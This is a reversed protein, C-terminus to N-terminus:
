PHCSAEECEPTTIDGTGVLNVNKSTIGIFSVETDECLISSDAVNFTATIDQYTDGNTDAVIPTGQALASAGLTLSATDITNVDIRQDGLVVVDVTIDTDPDVYNTPDGPAVDVGVSYPADDGRFFIVEVDTSVEGEPGSADGIVVLRYPTNPTLVITTDFEGGDYYADSYGTHEFVPTTDTTTGEYLALHTNVGGGYHGTYGSLVGSLDMNTYYWGSGDPGNGIMKFTVDFVSKQEAWDYDSYGYSYGDIDMTFYLGNFGYFTSGLGSVTWDTLYVCDTGCSSAPPTSLTNYSEPAGDGDGDGGQAQVYRNDAIGTAPQGTGFADPHPVVAQASFAALTGVLLLLVHDGIYQGITKNRFTAQYM